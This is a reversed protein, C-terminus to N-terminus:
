DCEDSFHEGECFICSGRGKRVNTALTEVLPLSVDLTQRNETNHQNTFQQDNQRHQRFEQNHTIVELMQLMDKHM